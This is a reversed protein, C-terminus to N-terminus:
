IVVSKDLISFLGSALGSVELIAKIAHLDAELPTVFVVVHEGM